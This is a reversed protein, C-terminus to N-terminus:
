ILYIEYNHEFTMIRVNFKLVIFLTHEFTMIRVNFKIGKIFTVKIKKISM